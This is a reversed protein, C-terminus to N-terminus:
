YSSIKGHIGIGSLVAAVYNVIETEQNTETEESEAEDAYYVPEEADELEPVDSTESATTEDISVRVRAPRRGIGLLKGEEGEDIVEILVEDVTVGLEELAENIAIQVTKATKEVYNAM